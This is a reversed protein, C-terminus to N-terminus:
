RGPEQDGRLSAPHLGPLLGRPPPPVLWFVCDGGTFAETVVDIGADSGQMVEARERMRPSLRAPDRTIVRIADASDVVNDLVQRGIRDTPTTVVIM